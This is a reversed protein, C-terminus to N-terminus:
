LTNDELMVFEIKLIYINPIKLNKPFKVFDKETTLICDAKSKQMEQLAEQLDKEQFDYHDRYDMRKVVLAGLSLATKEFNEPNALGSFLVLKKGQLFSLDERKGQLEELSSAGHKAMSVKKHFNKELYSKIEKRKEEEVLDAKTLIFESARKAARAFNERLCGWPLLGGGFPNTADILVIDRNRALRRHQFGDDLVITDVQFKEKALLCAQYRDRGVVVPVKMNLAHIYPEDGSEQPSVFIHNGDSVVCPDEKRKGGYGRSVIAVKKGHSVLKKVFFQVAPTKGTGGVAINGICILEVGEVSHISLIKKDYLFNRIRTIGDYLVSLLRMRKVM